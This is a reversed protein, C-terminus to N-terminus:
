RGIDITREMDEWGAACAGLIAREALLYELALRTKERDQPLNDLVEVLTETSAGRYGEAGMNAARARCLSRLTGATRMLARVAQPIEDFVAFVYRVAHLDSDRLAEFLMLAACVRLVMDAHADRLEQPLSLADVIAWTFLAISVQGDSNISLVPSRETETETETEPVYVLSSGSVISDLPDRVVGYAPRWGAGNRELELTSGPWGFTVTDTEAGDLVFGYRALLAANGLTAGYTNFVETGPPVSCVTVMDVTDTPDISPPVPSPDEEGEMTGGQRDHPCESLSGCSPCVDYESALQVHNHHAHNFADAVPVMSLGHYADVLFARSCVLSYAHLFGPLTPQLNVSELLPRVESRYFHDIEDTLPVGEEDQLERQVETGHLWRAADVADPDHFASAHGWLRAIPVTTAPFSQLYGHWRSETDLLQESYLALSLALTAGHGYPYVPIRLALACTRISLISSKPIVALKDPHLIPKNPSTVTVAIGAKPQDIISVSPHVTIHNEDLWRNLLGLKTPSM